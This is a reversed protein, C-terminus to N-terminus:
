SEDKDLWGGWIGYEIDLIRNIMKMKMKIRGAQGRKGKVVKWGRYGM